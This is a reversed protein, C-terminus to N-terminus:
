LATAGRFASGRRGIRRVPATLLLMLRFKYGKVTNEVEVRMWTVSQPARNPDNRRVRMRFEGSSSRSDFNKGAGPSSGM